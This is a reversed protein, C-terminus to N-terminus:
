RCGELLLDILFILDSSLLDLEFLPDSDPNRALYTEQLSERLKVIRERTKDTM